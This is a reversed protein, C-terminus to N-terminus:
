PRSFTLRICTIQSQQGSKKVGICSSESYRHGDRGHRKCEWRRGIRGSKGVKSSLDDADIRSIEGRGVKSFNLLQEVLYSGCCTQDLGLLVGGRDRVLSSFHISQFMRQDQGRGTRRGVKGLRLDRELAAVHM